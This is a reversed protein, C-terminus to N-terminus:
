QSFLQSKNKRYKPVHNNVATVKFYGVQGNVATPQIPDVPVRILQLSQFQRGSFGPGRQGDLRSVDDVQYGDFLQLIM